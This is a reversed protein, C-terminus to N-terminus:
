AINRIEKRIRKLNSEKKLRERTYDTLRNECEECLEMELEYEGVTLSCGCAICYYSRPM